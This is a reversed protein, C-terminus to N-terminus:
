QWIEKFRTAIREPTTDSIWVGMASESGALFKMRGPSRMLSFLQLHLRCLDRDPEGIPAQNWGAIYPTKDVGDFFRDVATYLKKLLPALADKEADSLETFDAVNRKPALIVEMPWRAGGPVFIIFDDTEAIVRRGDAKEAAIIDDFLHGGTKQRHARAQALLQETRPPLFPYSYIQGHPHQLTVGIEEGRNEFPTVQKVGEIASLAATRHTWAEIVTRIRTVSLDRFSQNVDSTFCVVECRAYAPKEVYLPQEGVHWTAHPDGDLHTSFSPFRNEFVVVDYDPAPIESPHEPDTTPALPNDAAAPMFTRNMRHAAYAVWAGTLPDRRMTSVTTAEPLKRTDPYSARDHGDTDDFYIIERGDALHTPHVTM